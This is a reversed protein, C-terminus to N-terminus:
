PTKNDAKGGKGEPPQKKIAKRVAEEWDEDTTLRDPKPGRVKKQKEPKEEPM